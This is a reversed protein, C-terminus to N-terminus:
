VRRGETRVGGVGVAVAVAVAGASGPPLFEKATGGVGGVASAEVFRGLMGGVSGVVGVLRDGTGAAADRVGCGEVVNLAVDAAGVVVGVVLAHEIVM